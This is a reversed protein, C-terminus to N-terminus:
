QKPTDDECRYGCKTKIDHDNPNPPVLHDKFNATCISDILEVDPGTHRVRRPTIVWPKTLAVPDVATAEYTLVDGNRTWRETVHLKDSHVSTYITRGVAGGGGLWTEDSIGVVDVVLTDGEWHGVSHGWWNSELDKPHTRGDTYILRFTSYPAAEYLLAAVQATQVIHVGNVGARPVGLPRCDQVPDLPTTGGFETSAIKKVKEMWEANYPPQNPAQCDDSLCIRGAGSESNYETSPDFVISGDPYRQMVGGVFGFGGTNGRAPPSGPNPANVRASASTGGTTTQEGGARSAGPANPNPAAGNWFGNLDPHGDATRPTTQGDVSCGICGPKSPSVDASVSAVKNCASLLPAAFLLMALATHGRDCLCNRM